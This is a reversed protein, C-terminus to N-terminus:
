YGAIRVRTVVLAGSSGDENLMINIVYGKDNTDVVKYIYWGDKEGKYIDQIQDKLSTSYSKDNSWILNLENPKKTITYYPSGVSTNAIYADAESSYSYNLKKMLSEFRLNSMKLGYYLNRFSAKIVSSEYKFDTEFTYDDHPNQSYATISIAVLITLFISKM